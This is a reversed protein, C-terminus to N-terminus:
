ASRRRRRVGPPARRIRRRSRSREAAERIAAAIRAIQAETLRGSSPLYFGTRSMEEAVPYREGRLARFYLPQAHIPVFFGRTEIGRRALFARLSDRDMGFDPGVRVAFMWFVSLSGPREEPLVLGPVGRLHERYLTAADRRAQILEALRETQALGVAAQLNTMRYNFGLRAHWFHRTASFAHGRLLRL